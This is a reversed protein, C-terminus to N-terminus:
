SYTSHWSLCLNDVAWSWYRTLLLKCSSITCHRGLELNLSEVTVPIIVGCFSASDAILGKGGWFPPKSVNVTCGQIYTM